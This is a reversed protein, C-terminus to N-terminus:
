AITSEDITPNVLTRVKKMLTSSSSSFFVGDPTTLFRASSIPKQLVSSSDRLFGKVFNRADQVRNMPIEVPNDFGKM